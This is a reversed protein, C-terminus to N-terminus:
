AEELTKHANEGLCMSNPGSRDHFATKMCSCNPNEKRPPPPPNGFFNDADMLKFRETVDFIMIEAFSILVHKYNEILYFYRVETM